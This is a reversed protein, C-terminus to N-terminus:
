QHPSHQGPRIAPPFGPTIFRLGGDVERVSVRRLGRQRRKGQEDLLPQARLSRLSPHPAYQLSCSITLANAPLPWTQPSCAEAPSSSFPPSPAPGEEGDEGRFSSFRRLLLQQMWFRRCESGGWRGLVEYQSVQPLAALSIPKHSVAARWHPARLTGQGVSTAM